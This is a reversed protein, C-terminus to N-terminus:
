AVSARCSLTARKIPHDGRSLVNESLMVQGLFKIQVCQLRFHRRGSEPGDGSESNWIQVWVLFYIFSFSFSYCASFFVFIRIRPASSMWMGDRFPLDNPHWSCLFFLFYPSYFFISIWLYVSPSFAHPDNGDCALHAKKCNVCASAVHAKNRRLLPPVVSPPQSVANHPQTSYLPMLRVPDTPHQGVQYISPSRHEVTKKHGTRSHTSPASHQNHTQTDVSSKRQGTEHPLM